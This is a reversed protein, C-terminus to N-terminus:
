LNEFETKLKNLKINHKILLIQRIEEIVEKDECVTQRDSGNGYTFSIWECKQNNTAKILDNTLDIQRLLEKARNFKDIDM